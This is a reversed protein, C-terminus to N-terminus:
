THQHHKKIKQAYNESIFPIAEPISINEKDTWGSVLKGQKKFEACLDWVEKVKDKKGSEFAELFKEKLPSYLETQPSTELAEKIDPINESLRSVALRDIVIPYGNPFEPTKIPLLGTNREGYDWYKIGDRTLKTRIIDTDKWKDSCNTGPCVEITVEGAPISILPQLIHSHEIREAGGLYPENREIRVVCGYDELFILCGEAGRKLEGSDEKTELISKSEQPYPLDLKDLIDCVQAASEKDKFRDYLTKEFAKREAKLVLNEKKLKVKELYKDIFPIKM